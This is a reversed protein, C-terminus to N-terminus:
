VSFCVLGGNGMLLNGAKWGRGRDDRKYEIGLGEPVQTAVLEQLDAEGLNEFDIRHIAM